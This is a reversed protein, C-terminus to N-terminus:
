IEAACSTFRLVIAYSISSLRESLAHYSNAGTAFGFGTNHLSPMFQTSMHLDSSTSLIWIGGDHPRWSRNINLVFRVESVLEDSHVGIGSGQSYRHPEVIVDSTLNACLSSQLFRHIRNVAPLRVLYDQLKEYSYREVPIDFEYFSQQIRKWEISELAVLLEQAKEPELVPALIIHTFPNRELRLSESM